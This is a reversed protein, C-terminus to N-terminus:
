MLMRPSLPLLHLLPMISPVRPTMNTATRANISATVVVVVMGATATEVANVMLPLAASVFVVRQASLLPACEELSYNVLPIKHNNGQDDRTCHRGAAGSGVSAINLQQNVQQHQVQNMLYEVTADFDSSYMEPNAKLSLKAQALSPDTISNLFHCVRTGPDYAIYDTKNALALMSQYVTKHLEVYMAFM